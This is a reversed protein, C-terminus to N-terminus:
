EVRRETHPAKRPAADHFYKAGLRAALGGNGEVDYGFSLLAAAHRGKHIGLVSEVGSVGLPEAHVRVVQQDRLGVVALLSQLDHFGQHARISHVHQHHVRDCREDRLGLEVAVHAVGQRTQM